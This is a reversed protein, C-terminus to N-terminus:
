KREELGRKQECRGIRAVISAYETAWAYRGERKLEKAVEHAEMDLPFEMIQRECAEIM